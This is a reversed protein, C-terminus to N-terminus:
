RYKKTRNLQNSPIDVLFFNHSFFVMPPHSINTSLSYAKVHGTERLCFEIGYVGHAAVMYWIIDKWHHPTPLPFPSDLVGGGSWFAFHKLSVM